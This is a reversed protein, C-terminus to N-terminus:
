QSMFQVWSDIFHLRSCFLLYFYMLYSHYSLPILSSFSLATYKMVHSLLSPSRNQTPLLLSTRQLYLPIQGHLGM